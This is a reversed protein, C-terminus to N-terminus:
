TENIRMCSIIPELGFHEKKQYSHAFKVQKKSETSVCQCSGDFLFISDMSRVDGNKSRSHSSAHMCEEFSTALVCSMQWTCFMRKRVM